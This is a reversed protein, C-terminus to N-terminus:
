RFKSGFLRAETVSTAIEEGTEALVLVERDSVIAYRKMNYVVIAFGNDSKHNLSDSGFFPNRYEGGLIGM